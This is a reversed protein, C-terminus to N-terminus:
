VLIGFLVIDIIINLFLVFIIPTQMSFTLSWIIFVGFYFLIIFLYPYITTFSVIREVKPLIFIYLFFSLLVLSFPKLGSNIEIFLFTLIIFSLSYLYRKKLCIYFANFLFGAIMILFFHISSIVNITTIFILMITLFIPNELNNRTM